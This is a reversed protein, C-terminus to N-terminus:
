FHLEQMIVCLPAIRCTRHHGFQQIIFGWAQKFERLNL